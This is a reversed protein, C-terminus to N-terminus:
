DNKGQTAAPTKENLVATLRLGLSEREDDTLFTGVEITEGRSRILLRNAWTAPRSPRLEIRTWPRKFAYAVRRAAGRWDFSFKEVMVSSDDVRIYERARARRQVTVVVAYLGAMEVLAFLLVPWFGLLTCALAIVLSVGVLSGYFWKTARPTLSSNPRLEFTHM